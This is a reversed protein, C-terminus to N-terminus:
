WLNFVITFLLISCSMRFLFNPHFNHSSRRPWSDTFLVAHVFFEQLNNAFPFWRATHLLLCNCNGGRYWYAHFFHCLRIWRRNREHLLILSFCRSGSTGSSLTGTTSHRSPGALIVEFSSAGIWGTFLPVRWFGQQVLGLTTTPKPFLAWVCVTLNIFLRSFPGSLITVFLATAMNFFFSRCSLTLCGTTLRSLFWSLGPLGSILRSVQWSNFCPGTPRRDDFVRCSPQTKWSMSGGFGIKRFLEFMRFGIWRTSNVFAIARWVLIRSWFGESPYMQGHSGWWRLGLAGFNSPRDWSSASHCSCPARSAAHFSALLTNFNFSFLLAVNKEGESFLHRGANFSFGSSRSNTTSEPADICIILLFSISVKVFDHLGVITM